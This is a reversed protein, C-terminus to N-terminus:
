DTMQEQGLKKVVYIHTTQVGGGRERERECCMCMCLQRKRASFPVFVSM